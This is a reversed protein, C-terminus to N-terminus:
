KFSSGIILESAMKTRKCHQKKRKPGEERRDWGAYKTTVFGYDENSGSYIVLSPIHPIYSRPTPVFGEHKDAFDRNQFGATLRSPKLIKRHCGPDYAAARHRTGRQFQM